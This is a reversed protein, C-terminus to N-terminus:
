RSIEGSGRKILQTPVLHVGSGAPDLALEAALAGIRRPDQAVVTVGPQLLDALEFDDFGVLAVREVLGRQQLVSVATMTIIDQATFLATPANDLDLLNEIQARASTRTAGERRVLAPDVAIGAGELAEVYGAYRGRSTYISPDRGVYGIRRHGQELLHEVGARAGSVNDVLVAPADLGAVPRDVLVVRAGQAIARHLHEASSETPAAILADVQRAAFAAAMDRERMLDLDTSSSFVAIGRTRAVDEIGRLLSAFFPNGADELLVGFTATRGDARRLATAAANPRYGLEDAAARVRDAVGPSVGPEGNVVRSVTKVSVGALAAVDRLTPRRGPGAALPRGLAAEPLSGMVSRAGGRFPRSALTVCAM